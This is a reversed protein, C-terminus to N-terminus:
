RVRRGGAGARWDDRRSRAHAMAADKRESHSDGGARVTSAEKILPKTGPRMVFFIHWLIPM